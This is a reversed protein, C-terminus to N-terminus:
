ESLFGCAILCSGDLGSNKRCVCLVLESPSSVLESDSASSHSTTCTNGGLFFFFRRTVMKGMLSFGASGVSDAYSGFQGIVAVMVKLLTSKTLLMILHSVAFTPSRM